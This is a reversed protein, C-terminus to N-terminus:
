KENSRLLNSINIFFIHVRRIEPTMENKIKVTNIAPIIVLLLLAYYPIQIMHNRILVVNVFLVVCFALLGTVLGPSYTKLQLTWVVHQFTNLLIFASIFSVILSFIFTERFHYAVYTLLFGVVCFSVIHLHISFHTSKPINVYYKRYWDLINWEELEHISFLIPIAWILNIPNM